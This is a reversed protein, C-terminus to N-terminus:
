HSLVEDKFKAVVVVQGPGGKSRLKAGIQEILRDALMDSKAAGKIEASKTAFTRQIWNPRETMHYVSVDKAGAAKLAKEVQEGREEALKKAAEPLKANEGAPYDQDSWAAVIFRDVKTEDKMQSVFEKLTGRESEGLTAKGQDFKVATMDKDVIEYLKVEIEGEGTKVTAQGAAHGAGLILSATAALQCLFATTKM